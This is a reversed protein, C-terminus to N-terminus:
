KNLLGILDLEVKEESFFPEGYEKRIQFGYFKTRSELHQIFEPKSIFTEPEESDPNYFQTAYAKVAEMKTEFTDTVDVIFSPDFEFTQMYYFLKQPRYSEQAEGNEDKTVVKPVGSFFMAEKVIQSTGIHDPHRDNFHPAFVLKPKYKRIKAVVIKMYEESYKLKGDPLGLNERHTLELIEAAKKAEEARTEVTGRTGLEGKSFDIIGVKLGAKTLKAITGAISLEVDDPHAAFAIVDLNM